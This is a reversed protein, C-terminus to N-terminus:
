NLYDFKYLTPNTHDSVAFVFSVSFRNNMKSGIEKYMSTLSNIFKITQINHKQNLISHLTISKIESSFILTPVFAPAKQIICHGLKGKRRFNSIKKSAPIQWVSHHIFLYSNLPFNRFRFCGVKEECLKSWNCSYSVWFWCHTSVM